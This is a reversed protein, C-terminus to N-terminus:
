FGRNRRETTGRTETQNKELTTVQADAVSWEQLSLVKTTPRINRTKAHDNRSLQFFGNQLDASEILRMPIATCFSQLRETGLPPDVTFNFGDRASPFTIWGDSKRILRERSDTSNPVLMTLKGSTGINFVTLYCDEDTRFQFQMKEGVKSMPREPRLYTKFGGPNTLLWLEEIWDEASQTPAPAQLIPASESAPRLQPLDRLEDVSFAMRPITVIEPVELQSGDTIRKLKASVVVTNDQPFRYRGEIVAYPVNEDKKAQSPAQVRSLQGDVNVIRPGWPVNAFARSLGEKLVVSIGHRRGTHTEVFEGIQVLEGQSENSTNAISKALSELADDLPTRPPPPTILFRVEQNGIGQQLQQLLTGPFQGTMDSLAIRAVVEAPQSSREIRHVEARALGQQDTVSQRDLVGQGTAFAFEVKAQPVPIERGSLLTVLRVELPLELKEGVKGRQQDGHEKRLRISALLTELEHRTETEGGLEPISIREHPLIYQRNVYTTRLMLPAATQQLERLTHLALLANVVDGQQLVRDARGREAKAKREMAQLELVWADVAKKADLRVLTYYTGCKQDLWREEVDLGSIQINVTQGSESIVAYSYGAGSSEQEVVKLSGTIHSELKTLLQIRADMDAARQNDSSAGSEYLGSDGQRQIARSQMIWVPAGNSLCPGPRVPKSSAQTSGTVPPSSLTQCGSFFIGSIILLFYVDRRM